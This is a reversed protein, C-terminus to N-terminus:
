PASISIVRRQGGGADFPRDHGPTEEAIAEIAAAPSVSVSGSTVCVTIRVRTAPRVGIGGPSSRSASAACLVVSHM